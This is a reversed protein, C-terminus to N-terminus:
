TSQQGPLLPSGHKSASDSTFHLLLLWASLSVSHPSLAVSLGRRMPHRRKVRGLMAMPTARVRSPDRSLETPQESIGESPWWSSGGGDVGMSSGEGTAMSEPNQVAGMSFGSDIRAIGVGHSAQAQSLTTTRLPGQGGWMVESQFTDRPSRDAPPSEVGCHVSGRPVELESGGSVKHEPASIGASSESPSSDTTNAPLSAPLHKGGGGSGTWHQAGSLFASQYRIWEAIPDGPALRQIQGEVSLQGVLVSLQEAPASPQEVSSPAAPGTGGDAPGILIWCALTWLPQLISFSNSQTVPINVPIHIYGNQLSRM